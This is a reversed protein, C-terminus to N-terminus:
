CVKIVNVKLGIM